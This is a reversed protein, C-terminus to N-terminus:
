TGQSSLQEVVILVTQIVLMVIIIMELVHGKHSQAFDSSRQGCLDYVREYVELQNSAFELRDILRARERLRDGIQSAITPPYVPPRHVLPVIKALDARLSIVKQFRRGLEQRRGLSSENFDFALPSDAELEGWGGALEREVRRLAGEYFSFEVVAQRVLALRGEAAIIAAAGPSWVLKAGQLQLMLSSGPAAAVQAEVWDRARDMAGTEELNTAAILLLKLREESVKGEAHGSESAADLLARCRVPPPSEWVIEGSRGPDDSYVISQLVAGVPWGAVPESNRAINVTPQGPSQPLTM